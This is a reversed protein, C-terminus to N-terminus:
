AYKEYPINKFKILLDIDSDDSFNNTTVSGFAYLKEVDYEQCYQKIINM